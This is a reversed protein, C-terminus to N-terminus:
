SGRWSRILERFVLSVFSPVGVLYRKWLRGPERFVRYLWELGAVRLVRPARPVRGSLFDFSAGVGMVFPVNLVRRYRSLWLEQKPVGLAVFLMDPNAEKVLSVLQNNDFDDIRQVQPPEHVGAIQLKPHKLTFVEACRGASGNTGGLLYVKKGHMAAYDILAGMLDVGPARSLLAGRLILHSLSIGFGDCVAVSDERLAKSFEPDSRAVLVIHPNVPVVRTMLHDRLRADITAVVQKVDGDWLTFGLFEVTRISEATPPHGAMM